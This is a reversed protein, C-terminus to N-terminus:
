KQISLGLWPYPISSVERKLQYVCACVREQAMMLKAEVVWYHLSRQRTLTLVDAGNFFPPSNPPFFVCARGESGVENCLTLQSIERKGGKERKGGRERYRDSM